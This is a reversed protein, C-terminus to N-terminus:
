FWCIVRCVNRKNGKNPLELPKEAVEDPASEPKKIELIKIETRRNLQHAEEFRVDSREFQDIFAQDIVDGKKFFSFDNRVIYPTTKGYGKALVRESNIGQEILYDIISQARKHSLTVNYLDSARTDTHSGIEIVLNPNRLLFDKLSDLNSRSEPRLRWSGLDYYINQMLHIENVCFQKDTLEFYGDCKPSLEKTASEPEPSVKPRPVYDMRLVAIEVRRNMQHAEERRPDDPKFQSIFKDDIVDGKKFFSFNKTIVRPRAEQYGKPVLREPDIDNEILYDVISQARKQSLSLSYSDSVRSDTHASVEIVFGPNNNLYCVLEDLASKSEPRLKWDGLDFFINEIVIPRKTADAFKDRYICGSNKAPKEEIASQKIDTDTHLKIEIVWNTEKIGYYQPSAEYIPLKRDTSSDYLSDELVVKTLDPLQEKFGLSIIRTADIEMEILYQIISSHVQNGNAGSLFFNPNTGDDYSSMEIVVDPNSQMFCVVKNLVTESQLNLQSSSYDFYAGKLIITEGKLLDEGKPGLGCNNSAPNARLALSGILILLLATLLLIIKNM